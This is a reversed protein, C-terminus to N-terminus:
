TCYIDSHTGSELSNRKHRRIHALDSKNGIRIWHPPFYDQRNCKTDLPSGPRPFYGYYTTTKNALWAAWWSYSGTSQIVADCAALLAMDFGPDKGESYVVSVDSRNRFVEDLAISEKTWPLNDTAVIYQVPISLNATLRTAAKIYYSQGAVTHGGQLM